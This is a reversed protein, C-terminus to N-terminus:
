EDPGPLYGGDGLGAWREFPNHTGRDGARLRSYAAAAAYLPLMPLGLCAAYQSAHRDEHRLLAPRQALWHADYPTLVVNGITFAPARRFPLRHNVALLLGRDGRHLRARGVVAATVGLLTSGNLANVVARVRWLEM